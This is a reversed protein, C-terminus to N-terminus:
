NALSVTYILFLYNQSLKKFGRPVFLFLSSIVSQEAISDLASCSEWKGHEERRDSSFHFPNDEGHGSPKARSGYVIYPRGEIEAVVYQWLHTIPRGEMKGM